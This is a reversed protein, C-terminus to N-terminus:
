ETKLREIQVVLADVTADIGIHTTDIAPLDLADAQGRLYAAWCDMRPNSLEPQGRMRTTIAQWSERSGFESEMAEAAPLRRGCISSREIGLTRRDTTKVDVRIM